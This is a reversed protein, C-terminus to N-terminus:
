KLFIITEKKMAPLFDIVESVKTGSSKLGIDSFVNNILYKIAIKPELIGFIKVILNENQHNNLEEDQTKKEMEKFIRTAVEKEMDNSM